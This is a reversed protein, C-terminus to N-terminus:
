PMLWFWLRQLIHLFSALIVCSGVLAGDDLYWLQYLLDDPSSHASLGSCSIFLFLPGFPDGQQYWYHTFYSSTWFVAGRCLLLMVTGWFLEPFASRCRSLFSSRCCENFANSIDVKLCCLDLESGFSSLISHLSHM